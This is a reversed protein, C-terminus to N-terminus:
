EAWGVEIESDRKAYAPFDLLQVGTGYPPWWNERQCRAFMETLESREAEGQADIVDTLLYPVALVPEVSTVAAFIFRRVSLGTAVEFGHKYHAKQINYRLRAAMRGFGSPSEDATSKLDMLDVEHANVQHVWDPRAKCKVGTVPDTWFISAEGVGSSLLEAIEPERHLAVLQQQTIDFDERTVIERGECQANFELWWQMALVSEPSPKKASWQAKTPRRPANEPVVAYRKDMADAELVYCHALTGRLMPRTPVVQVRNKAHWPSRSMLKLITASLADIAQYEDMPMGEILGKM